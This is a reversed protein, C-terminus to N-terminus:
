CNGNSQVISLEIDRDITGTMTPHLIVEAGMSLWHELPKRFGCIMVFLFGFRGVDPVDFVCFENWGTVGVEYPYFPFM